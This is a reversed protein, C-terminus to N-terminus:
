WTRLLLEIARLPALSEKFLHLLFDAIQSVTPSRFDVKHSDCWKVFIAWKSKYVTRISLRQPAEIRAAVEDTFGQEQIAFARPALCASESQQSEQSRPRQLAADGSGKSASTPLSDSSISQSPGLVVAHKALRSCNSDNQSLGSGDGQLNSPQASLSSPLRLCGTEGMTSELCRNGLSDSRSGTVSVQSTQSQILNCVPRVTTPGLELVLSQVGASVPVVRDPDGSQTPVAHGSDCELSRSYAKSEPSNGQSPVLISTEM